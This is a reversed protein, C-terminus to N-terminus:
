ITLDYIRDSLCRVRIRRLCLAAAFVVFATAIGPRTPERDDHLCVYYLTPIQALMALADDAGDQIRAGDHVTLIFTALTQLTSLVRGVVAHVNTDAFEIQLDQLRPLRSLGGCIFGLTNDSQLNHIFLHVKTLNVFSRGLHAGFQSLSEDGNRWEINPMVVSAISAASASLTQTVACMTRFDAAVRRGNPSQRFVTKIREPVAVTCM